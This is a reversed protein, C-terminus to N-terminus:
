RKALYIVLLSSVWCSVLRHCVGGDTWLGCCRTWVPINLCMSNLLFLSQGHALNMGSCGAEDSFFTLPCECGARWVPAEGYDAMPCFWTCTSMVLVLVFKYFVGASKQDRQRQLSSQRTQWQFQLGSTLSLQTGASQAGSSTNMTHIHWLPSVSTKYNCTYTSFKQSTYILSFCWILFGQGTLGTPSRCCM